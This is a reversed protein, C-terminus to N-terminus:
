KKLTIEVVGNSASEGFRKIAAEGKLVNVSQISAPPIASMEEQTIFKGDVIFKLDSPLANVGNRKSQM